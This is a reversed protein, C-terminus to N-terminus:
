NKVATKMATKTVAKAVAKTALKTAAKSAAKSALRVSPSTKATNRGHNLSIDDKAFNAKKASKLTSILSKKEISM